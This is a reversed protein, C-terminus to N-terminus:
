RWKDGLKGKTYFRLRRTRGKHVYKFVRLQTEPTTRARGGHPTGAGWPQSLRKGSSEGGPKERFTM